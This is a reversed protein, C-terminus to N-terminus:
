LFMGAYAPFVGYGLSSCTKYDSCGRMRPSFRSTEIFRPPQRPVDGCVRPFRDAQAELGGTFRFMGAYAPFVGRRPLASSRGASCGRMRPSFKCPFLLLSSFSPVDGCVRPFRLFCHHYDLFDLFMGAYAPFVGHCRTNDMSLDSCGRMRPSFEKFENLLDVGAPVDGCVRPFGDQHTPQNGKGPFMGAYAPFVRSSPSKKIRGSSCGRM